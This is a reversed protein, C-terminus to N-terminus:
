NPKQVGMYRKFWANALVSVREVAGEEDFTSSAGQVIELRKPGALKELAGRNLELTQLDRSAVILMTPTAVERLTGLALDPRGGRSVVAQFKEPLRAAARMIAGAATGETYFGSKLNAVRRDRSVWDLIADIRGELLEMELRLQTTIRDIHAEEETLLEVALTALDGAELGRAVFQSRPHNHHSTGSGHAFIVLGKPNRPLVLEGTVRGESVDIRVPKGRPLDRTAQM